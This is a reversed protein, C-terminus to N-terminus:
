PPHALGTDVALGDLVLHSKSAFWIGRAINPLGGGYSSFTIPAGPRGSSSPELDTDAFRAGGRFLVKDGPALAAANVRKVTRWATAPSRGSRADSGQPSVYYTAAAAAAPLSLVVLAFATAALARVM